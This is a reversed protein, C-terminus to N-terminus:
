EPRPATTAWPVLEKMRMIAFGREAWQKYGVLNYHHDDSMPLGMTAILGARPIKESAIKLQERCRISYDHSPDFAGTAGDELDGMIFPINPDDLDARMDSAIGAMCENFRPINMNDRRFENVGLMTFIGAFTVKGKLEIAPKMVFDYLLAGKRFNRCFGGVSGDHGRGIHVFTLDPAHEMATHAIAMGPGARGQTLRDGSLPEKAPTFRGNGYTWLKPHTEFYMARMNPPTNTRGAANSHGLHLTVIVKDKPVFTGGIMVGATGAAPPPTPQGPPPMPRPPDNPRPPMGGTGPSPPAGGTAPPPTAGPGPPPTPNGPGPTGAPPAPPAVGPEGPSPGGPQGAPDTAETPSESLGCSSGLLLFGAFLLHHARM